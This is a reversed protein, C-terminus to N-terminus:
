YGRNSGVQRAQDTNWFQSAFVFEDGASPGPTGLDLFHQSTTKEIVVITRRGGNNSASAFSAGGIAIAVLAGVGATILCKRLMLVGKEDNDISGILRAVMSRVRAM